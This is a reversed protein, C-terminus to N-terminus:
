GVQDACAGCIAICAANSRGYLDLVVPDGFPLIQTMIVGGVASARDVWFYTNALGAWTLQVQAGATRHTGINHLFSLGWKQSTGPFFNADNALERLSPRMMGAEVHGISNQGMLAVTEPKLM